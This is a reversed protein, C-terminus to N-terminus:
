FPEKELGIYSGGTAKQMKAAADLVCAAVIVRVKDFEARALSSVCALWGLQEKAIILDQRPSMAVPM